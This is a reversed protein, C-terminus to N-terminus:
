GRRDERPEREARRRSVVRSRRKKWWIVVGTVSLMAVVLGLGAVAVRGALGGIQGSHLPFQMQTFVDAATGRGPQTVGVLAGTHADYYLMPAGLGRGRDHHSPWLLALYLGLESFHSVGSVRQPWGQAQAHANARARIADFGVLPLADREAVPTSATPIPTLTSVASLAPRFLEERLNLYASSLALLALALWLWLGFARHLDLTLRYSGAGRKILWAPKWKAMRLGGRPLTLYVGVFSDVLWILAIGGMFWWGWLGPVYLSHHIQLMFPVFSEAQLCCARRARRGQIEGTGPDLYVEDYGLPPRGARASVFALATRGPTGDHTVYDVRLAPDSAEIRAALADFGLPPATSRAQHFGPNLWADIDHGFALISGTLGAVTLFLATLLGAYRHLWVWTQREGLWHRGAAM